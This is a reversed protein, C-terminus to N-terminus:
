QPQYDVQIDHAVLELTEIAVENSGANFAPADLKIPLAGLVKWRIVAKGSEDCLDVLIDKKSDKFPNAYTDQLWRSLFNNNSVVGKKMTLRIPQRMGPIIKVGM